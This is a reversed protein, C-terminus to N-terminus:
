AAPRRLIPRRRVAGYKWLINKKAADTRAAVLNKQIEGLIVECRQRTEPDTSKLGATVADVADAGM